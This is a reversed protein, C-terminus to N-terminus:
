KEEDSWSVREEERGEDMAREILKVMEWVSRFQVTKDKEMWTVAGQWSSNQRHWVRIIFTGLDGHKSLLEKNDMVCEEMAPAPANTWKEGGFTRESTAARPFRLRDFLEEMRYVIQEGTLFPIAEESYRHYLRGTVRRGALRDICVAVDNPASIYWQDSGTHHNGEPM